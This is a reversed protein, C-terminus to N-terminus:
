KMYQKVNNIDIVFPEVLTIHPVEKGNIHDVAYNLVTSAVKKPNQAVDAKWIGGKIIEALGEPNGDFAVIPIDRGEARIVQYAGM